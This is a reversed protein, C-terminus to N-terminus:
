RPRTGSPHVPALAPAQALRELLDARQSLYTRLVSEIGNVSNQSHVYFDFGPPLFTGGAEVDCRVLWQALHRGEHRRALDNDFSIYTPVGMTKIWRVAEPVSRVIAWPKGQQPPFREDDLFLAPLTKM